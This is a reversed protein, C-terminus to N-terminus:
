KMNDVAVDVVLRKFIQNKEDLHPEKPPAIEVNSITITVDLKRSKIHFHRARGSISHDPGDIFDDANFDFDQLGHWRYPPNLLNDADFSARPRHMVLDLHSLEGTVDQEPQLTFVYAASGNAAKVIVKPRTDGDARYELTGSFPIIQAIANNAFTLLAVLALTIKIGTVHM